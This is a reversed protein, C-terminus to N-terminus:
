SYSVVKQSVVKPNTSSFLGCKIIGRLQAAIFFLNNKDTTGLQKWIFM